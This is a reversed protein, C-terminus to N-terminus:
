RTLFKGVSFVSLNIFQMLHMYFSFISHIIKTVIFLNLQHLVTVGYTLCLFLCDYEENTM